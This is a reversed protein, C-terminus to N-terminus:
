ELSSAAATLFTLTFAWNKGVLITFFKPTSKYFFFFFTEDTFFFSILNKIFLFLFGGGGRRSGHGRMGEGAAGDVGVGSGEVGRELGARRSYTERPLGRGHLDDEFDPWM